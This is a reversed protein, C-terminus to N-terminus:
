KTNDKAYPNEGMKDLLEKALAVVAENCETNAHYKVDLTAADAVGGTTDRKGETNLVFPYFNKCVWADTVVTCTADPEIFVVDLTRDIFLSNNEDVETDSQFVPLLLDQMWNQHFKRIPYNLKDAYWFHPATDEYRHVITPRANEDLQFAMGSLLGEIRLASMEIMSTAIKTLEEHNPVSPGFGKIVVPIVNRRYHTMDTVELKFYDAIRSM